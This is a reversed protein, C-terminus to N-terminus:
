LSLLLLDLPAKQADENWLFAETPFNSTEINFFYDKLGNLVTNEPKGVIYLWDNKQDFGSQEWLKLIYYLQNTAPEGQYTLCHLLKEPSFCIVDLIDNHFNVFMRSTMNITKGKNEFRSILPTTHHFFAPDYLSRTLFEYLEKHINFLTVSEQQENECTLVLGTQDNQNYHTFDYLVSKEKELFYNGPVIDYEKSVIIVNTNRFQQTLFNLDFIIRQISQLLSGESFSTERLCYNGGIEPDAISFMFGDPKIRISLDYKESQGLDITEPIFM